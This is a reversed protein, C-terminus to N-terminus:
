PGKKPATQVFSGFTNMEELRCSWVLKGEHVTVDPCGDCMDQRGDPMFDIPQIVMLSQIYAPRRLNAPSALVRGIMGTLSNRMRKDVIGGV